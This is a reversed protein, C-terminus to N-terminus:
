QLVLILQISTKSISKVILNTISIIEICGDVGGAMLCVWSSDGGTGLIRVGAKVCDSRSLLYWMWLIIRESADSFEHMKRLFDDDICSLVIMLMGRMSIPWVMLLLIANSAFDIGAEVSHGFNAVLLVFAPSTPSNSIFAFHIAIIWDDASIGYVPNVGM